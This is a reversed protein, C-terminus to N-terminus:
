EEKLLRHLSIYLQILDPPTSCHIIFQKETITDVWCSDINGAPTVILRTPAAVLSHTVVISEV